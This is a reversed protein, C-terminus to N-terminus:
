IQKHIYATTLEQVVGWQQCVQKLFLSTFEAGRNSVLHAPKEWRTFIEDTLISVIKPTKAERMHFLDVCKSCYDVVVLLYQHQRRSKTFPGMIDVGLKYRPEKFATSQLHCPLKTLQYKKM